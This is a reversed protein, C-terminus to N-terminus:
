DRGILFPINQAEPIEGTEAGKRAVAKLKESMGTPDLAFAERGRQLELERQEEELKQKALSIRGYQELAPNVGALADALDSLKSRGVRVNALGYQFGPLSVPQIPTVPGLRQLEAM